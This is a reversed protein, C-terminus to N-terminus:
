SYNDLKERLLNSRRCSFQRARCRSSRIRASRQHPRAANALLGTPAGAYLAARLVHRGPGQCEIRVSSLTEPAHFIDWCERRCNSYVHSRFKGVIEDTLLSLSDPNLRVIPGVARVEALGPLAETGREREAGGAGAAFQFVHVHQRQHDRRGGDAHAEAAERHRVAARCQFSDARGSSACPRKACIPRRARAPAFCGDSTGRSRRELFPVPYTTATSQHTDNKPTAGSVRDADRNMPNMRWKRSAEGKGRDGKVPPRVAGALEKECRRQLDHFDTQVQDFLRWAREREPPLLGGGHHLRRWAALATALQTSMDVRWRQHNMPTTLIGRV